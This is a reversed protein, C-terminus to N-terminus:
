PSQRVCLLPRIDLFAANQRTIKAKHSVSIKRHDGSIMPSICHLAANRMGFTWECTAAWDTKIGLGPSVDFWDQLRQLLRPVLRSSEPEVIIQRRDISRVFFPLVASNRFPHPTVEGFM